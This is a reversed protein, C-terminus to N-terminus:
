VSVSVCVCVSVRCTTRQNHKTHKSERLTATRSSGEEAGKGYERAHPAGGCLLLELLQRLVVSSSRTPRTSCGTSSVLAGSFEFAFRSFIVCLMNSVNVVSAHQQRRRLVGRAAGHRNVLAIRQRM